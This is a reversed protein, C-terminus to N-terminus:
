REFSATSPCVAFGDWAESGDRGALGQWPGRQELGVAGGIAGIGAGGFTRGWHPQRVGVLM